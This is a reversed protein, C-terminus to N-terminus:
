HSSRLVVMAAEVEGEVVSPSPDLLYFQECGSASVRKMLKLGQTLMLSDAWLDLWKEEGRLGTLARYATGDPNGAHRDMWVCLPRVMLSPALLVQTNGPLTKGVVGAM